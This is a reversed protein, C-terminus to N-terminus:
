ETWHSSHSPICFILSSCQFIHCLILVHSKFNAEYPLFFCRFRSVYLSPAERGIFCASGIPHLTSNAHCGIEKQHGDIRKVSLHDAKYIPDCRLLCFQTILEKRVFGQMVRTARVNHNQSHGYQRFVTSPPKGPFQNRLIAMYLPFSTSPQQNQGAQLVFHFHILLKSKPIQSFGAGHPTTFGPM